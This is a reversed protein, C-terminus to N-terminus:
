KGSVILLLGKGKPVPIKDGPKFAAAKQFDKIAPATFTVKKADLGLAKWDLSLQCATDKKAWSALSIMTKEGKIIYATALINKDNTKVPCNSSWYGLMESREIGFDDWAKWIPSPDGAWPMRSTMGYVMGRWPNGGDQLMEGMLGFPIGSVEVMWFDPDSKYDFYEGFWLRDIYPFHELYLNASNAFGDRTNYQNASHLDILKGRGGSDLIKRVRKMVTRDFAVDDIYIGDIGVHKVLWNLGELYYNHWRSVGSNIVAADKYKPVYWGAIYNGGLHEQLWAFGGGKGYSLIEDGLSRLAFLEPAINALERVTYYIKVKMGMRHAEDIYAKMEKPRIFPYNIFPNIQTAHHVNVTNAGHSAIEKLKKFRHFFRHTWQQKTNLTKFPTVLLNFNYHLVQGKEMTRQGSYANVLLKDKGQETIDIGGNGHNAWSLPMNLPKQHYFNTNLPRQYNAGRLSYQLGANVDGIWAGDQNKKISWKWKCEQPRFGGKLGLGMMYKAADKKMPIELRIDNIKQKEAAKITVKYEVFGDFEMRASCTMKLKGNGSTSEVKWAVAGPAKRTFTLKGPKWEVTKAQEDEIVMAMPAALIDRGPGKVLKTVSSSFKSYIKEPFGTEGITLGRGLCVVKFLHGDKAIRLNKFPKVVKDDLALTSDLWRLRSHREPKSDGADALINKNVTIRLTVRQKELGDGAVWLTGEYTGPQADKPVQVGYWLAQVNGKAVGCKKKFKKGTWDIGGTNFCRLAEAIISGGGSVAKLDSFGTELSDISQSVAYVGVQFAFFEGRAAEGQFVQKTEKIGPKIWRYPLFRTMRIPFERQEPFLLFPKNQHSKDLTAVEKKTAIVEMPYFSNFEDIAQIEKVAARPLKNEKGQWSTLWKPNPKYKPKIYTVTPYHKRGGHNYPMYYVYYTGPVTQPQFVFDGSENDIHKMAVNQIVNGTKADVIYVHKQGPENDRRRWPLHLFVADAKQNVEIVARHNGYKENDWSGTRYPLEGALISLSILVFIIAFTLQKM